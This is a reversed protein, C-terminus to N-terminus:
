GGPNELFEEEYHFDEKSEDFPNIKVRTLLGNM